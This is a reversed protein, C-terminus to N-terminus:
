AGATRTLTVRDFERGLDNIARLTMTTQKGPAAPVVDCALYAYRAYRTQSWDVTENVSTALGYFVPATSTTSGQVPAGRYREGGPFDYHPRGGSGVLVYTPGDTEPYVTGMDVADRTSKGDKLPNTREYQHNHGQLVLDVGYQQFLPALATRVGNDSGHTNSTSFACHHFYAVIFDVSKDARYTALRDTLWALQAGNSYGKNTAIEESLDNADIAICAVNGWTFSYVSPCALPGGTPFALRAAHGGYGHADTQSLAPGSQPAGYLVEMDHNGTSFMWPVSKASAEIERFYTTWAFPNYTQPASSGANPQEPGGAGVSDAYCMDGTHLHFANDREAAILSVLSIVPNDSRRVGAADAAAYNDTFRGGQPVGNADAAPENIGQDGLATFTFPAAVGTRAPAMTFTQDPTAAEGSADTYRFRWHYTTGPDLDDLAAHAYFQQGAAVGSGMPLQTILNRVDVPVVSGYAPSTGYDLSLRAGRPFPGLLEGSVRMQRTADAGFSLRRGVLFAGPAAYAKGLVQGWPSATLVAAGAGSAGLRLASRRSVVSRKLQRRVWDTQEDASLRQRLDEPLGVRPIEVDRDSM